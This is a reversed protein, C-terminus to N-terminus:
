GRPVASDGDGGGLREAAQANPHLLGGVKRGGKGGRAFGALRRDDMALDIRFRDRRGRREGANALSRKGAAALAASANAEIQIIVEVLVGRAQQTNGRAM